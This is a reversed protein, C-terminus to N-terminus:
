LIRIPCNASHMLLDCNSINPLHIDYVGYKFIQRHLLNYMQSYYAKRRTPLAIQEAIHYGRESHTPTAQASMDACCSQRM